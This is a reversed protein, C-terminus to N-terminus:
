HDGKIVSGLFEYILHLTERPEELLMFHGANKVTRIVICEACPRSHFRSQDGVILLKPQSSNHFIESLEKNRSWSVISESTKFFAYDPTSKMWTARKAGGSGGTTSIDAKMKDYNAVFKKFEMSSVKLSEGCDKETLNGELSILAIVHNPVVKLLLTGLMGGLSHGVVTFRRLEKKELVLSIIEAQELLDYSFGKPKDSEGFGLVDLTLISFESFRPDSILDSFINQNSQLGHLGLM